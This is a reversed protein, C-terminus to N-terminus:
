TVYYWSWHERCDYEDEAVSREGDYIVTGRRCMVNAEDLVWRGDGLQEGDFQPQGTLEVNHYECRGILQVVSGIEHRAV